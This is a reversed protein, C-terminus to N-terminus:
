DTSNFPDPYDYSFQTHDFLDDHMWRDFLDEISDAVLRLVLYDDGSYFVRGTPVDLFYYLACGDHCLPLLRDPWYGQPVAIEWDAMYKISDSDGEFSRRECESLNISKKGAEHFLYQDTLLWTEQDESGIIGFIGDYGPGFGGNAVQEYLARLIPPLPFKLLDETMKLQEETAPPYLHEPIHPLWGLSGSPQIEYEEGESTRQYYHIQRDIVTLRIDEQVGSGRRGNGETPLPTDWQFPIGLEYSMLYTCIRDCFARYHEQEIM